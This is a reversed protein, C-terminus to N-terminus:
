TMPTTGLLSVSSGDCGLVLVSSLTRDLPNLCVIRWGKLIPSEIDPVVRVEPSVRVSFELSERFSVNPVALILQFGKVLVLELIM